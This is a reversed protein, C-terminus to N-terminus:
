RNYGIAIPINIEIKIIINKWFFLDVNKADSTTRKTKHKVEKAVIKIVFSLFKFFNANLTKAEHLEEHM